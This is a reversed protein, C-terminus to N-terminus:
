HASALISGVMRDLDKISNCVEAYNCYPLFQKMEADGTNWRDRSEPNLWIVQKGKRGIEKLIEAQTDFYNNRGDGLIIITSRSDIDNMAIRKFDKFAQGYDTSGKGYDNLSMEIAENLPYKEFLETVEGLENSFAFARVRPLVESLSYLFTLLFRSVNKVSGSVDCLVFVRPRQPKIQKFRIDFLSGDFALNNRLTKRIDLQGRKVVKKRKAYKKALQHALKRVSERIHDFYYPQITTLKSDSLAEKIFREGTGDVLLLYQGEVYTRIREIIYARGRALAEATAVELAGKESKLRAIEEDLQQGGMHLLIRRSYLSRERLSKMRHLQVSNAAEVLLLAIGSEDASLLMNGLRSQQFAAPQAGSNRRRKGQGKEDPDEAEDGGTQGSGTDPRQSPKILTLSELGRFSQHSFFREFCIDFQLKEEETKALVISLTDKLLDRDSLGIIELAAIADLSEAPSVLLDAKRLAAVFDGIM